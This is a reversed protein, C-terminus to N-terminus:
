AREAKQRKSEAKQESESDAAVREVEVLDWGKALASAKEMVM